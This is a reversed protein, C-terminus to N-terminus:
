PHSMLWAPRVRLSYRDKEFRAVNSSIKSHTLSAFVSQHSSYRVRRKYRADLATSGSFGASNEPTVPLREFGDPVNTLDDPVSRTVFDAILFAVNAQVSVEMM